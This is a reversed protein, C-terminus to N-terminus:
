ELNGEALDGFSKMSGMSTHKPLAGGSWGGRDSDPYTKNSTNREKNSNKASKRRRGDGSSSLEPSTENASRWGVIGGSSDGADPAVEAVESQESQESLESLEAEM